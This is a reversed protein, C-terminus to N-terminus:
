KETRIAMSFIVFVPNAYVPRMQTLVYSIIDANIKNTLGKHFIFWYFDATLDSSLCDLCNTMMSSFLGPAAIKAEYLRNNNIFEAVDLWYVDSVTSMKNKIFPSTSINNAILTAQAGFIVDLILLSM